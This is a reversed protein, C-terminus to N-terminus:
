QVEAHRHQDAMWTIKGDNNSRGDIHSKRGQKMSTLCVYGTYKQGATSKKVSKRQMLNFVYISFLDFTIQHSQLTYVELRSASLDTEPFSM